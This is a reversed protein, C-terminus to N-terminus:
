EEGDIWLKIPKTGFHKRMNCTFTLFHTMVHYRQSACLNRVMKKSDFSELMASDGRSRLALGDKKDDVTFGRCLVVRTDEHNAAQNTLMDYCFSTYHYDTSTTMSPNTIRSRVHKPISEFGFKSTSESLLPAPIAGAISCADESAKWFISSFCTSEPYMLPVSEGVSKSCLKQIFYNQKKNGKVVHRKRTLLTGCQNLMVHGNITIDKMVGKKEHEDSNVDFIFEGSNTTYFHNNYEEVNNDDQIDDTRDTIPNDPDQVSTLHDEFDDVNLILGGDNRRTARPQQFHIDDSENDSENDNTNNSDGINLNKM